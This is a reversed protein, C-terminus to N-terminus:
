RRLNTYERKEKFPQFEMGGGDYFTGYFEVYHLRISHVFAGIPNMLLMVTHVTIFLAASVLPGVIPIGFLMAAIFNFAMGVGPSTMNLALLRSYSAFNGVYGPLSLVALIGSGWFLLVFGTLFLAAAVAKMGLLLAPVTSFILLWSVNDTLVGKYEKRTLKDWIGLVHGFIIQLVGVAVSVCLLVIANSKYLPDILVLPMDKTAVGLVYKSMFDALYSGTLVGFLITSLGCWVLIVMFNDVGQSYKGYKRRLLYAAAALVLGYVADGAMFGFYLIMTPATVITPDIQNYRPPSYMTTLSEFPRLWAPNDLLTPADKPELDIDFSCMGDAEKEIGNVLGQCRSMPVWMRLYSVCKTAGMRAFVSSKEEELRLLEEFVLLMPRKESYMSSLRAASEAATRGVGELQSKVGEFIDKITGEGEVRIEELGASRLAQELEADRAAPVTVCVVAKGASVALKTAAYESGFREDLKPILTEEADVSIVGVRSALYTGGTFYSADLDFSKLPEMKAQKELLRGRLENLEGISKLTSAAEGEFGALFGDVETKLRDFGYEGVDVREHVSVGLIEEFFGAKAGGYPTLSENLLRVRALLAAADAARGLPRDRGIGSKELEEEPIVDVQAVGELHLMNLVADKRDHAIVCEVRCMRAPKLM